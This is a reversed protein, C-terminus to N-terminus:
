PMQATSREMEQNRGRNPRLVYGRIEGELWFAPMELSGNRRSPLEGSPQPIATPLGWEPPLRRSIIQPQCNQTPIANPIFWKTDRMYQRAPVTPTVRRTRKGPLISCHLVGALWGGGLRGKKEGDVRFGNSFCEGGHAAHRQQHPRIAGQSQRRHHPLMDFDLLPLPAQVLRLHHLANHHQVRHAPFAEVIEQAQAFVRAQLLHQPVSDRRRIRRPPKEILKVFLVLYFLSLLAARLALNGIDGLLVRRQRTKSSYIM